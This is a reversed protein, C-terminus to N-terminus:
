DRKPESLHVSAHPGRQNKSSITDLHMLTANNNLRSFANYPCSLHKENLNYKQLVLTPFQNPNRVPSTLFNYLFLDSNLPFTYHKGHQWQMLHRRLSLRLYFITQTMKCINRTFNLTKSLLHTEIQLCSLLRNRRIRTMFIKLDARSVFVCSNLVNQTM